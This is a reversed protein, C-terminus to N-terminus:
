LSINLSILMELCSELGEVIRFKNGVDLVNKDVSGLLLSGWIIGGGTVGVMNQFFQTWLRLGLPSGHVLGHLLFEQFNKILCGAVEEFDM